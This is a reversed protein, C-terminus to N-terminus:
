EILRLYQMAEPKVEMGFRFQRNGLNSKQFKSLKMDEALHEHCRLEM